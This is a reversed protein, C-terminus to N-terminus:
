RASGLADGKQFKGINVKASLYYCRRYKRVSDPGGVDLKNQNFTAFHRVFM